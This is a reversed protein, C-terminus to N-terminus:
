CPMATRRSLAFGLDNIEVIPIHRGQTANKGLSIFVSGGGQVYRTLADELKQSIPGADSLIVFAYKPVNANAAQSTSLSEVTFAPGAASELATRIYLPSATDGDSHVLLAPKPDAREM